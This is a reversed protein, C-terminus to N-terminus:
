RSDVEIMGANRIITQALKASFGRLRSIDPVNAEAISRVTRYGASYLRRARVRGVERIRLLDILEAKVGARIRIALGEIDAKVQKRYITALESLSHLLWEATSVRSQIDGPGVGYKENIIDMPVEEIWDMMVATLKMASPNKMEMDGIFPLDSLNDMDRYSFSIEPMDPTSCICYIAGSVSYQDLLFNRMILASEPDIYLNSVKRGFETARYRGYSESIFGNKLLYEVGDEIDSNEPMEGSYGMFTSSYFKLLEDITGVIGSSILALDNFRLLRPESLSSTVPEPEGSIYEQAMRLSQDSSAWLYCYGKSDYDPRGARGMMQKAEMIPIFQSMGDTFRTLDRLIVGRAPLNVGAALTPTACIVKLKGGRFLEEVTQRQENSLGAHHFATGRAILDSLLSNKQTSEDEEIKIEQGTIRLSDALQVATEEARRRSNRFILVQGGDDILKRSIFTVPDSGDIKESYEGSIIRNRYIVFSEVPVPRFSSSILRCGLWDCLSRANSITASLGLFRVDRNLERAATLFVELRSGRQPDGILHLEDAVILGIEEVFAPDHHLLSDAKESTMVLVDFRSLRYYGEDFDGTAIGVRAGLLSMQRLGGYIESALARLPVIYISKRGQLFTDAIAVKAILTKGAATPASVIVNEGNRFASIAESQHAYLRIGDIGLAKEVAEDEFVKESDM